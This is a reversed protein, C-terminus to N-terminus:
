QTSSKDTPSKQIDTGDNAWSQEEASAFMGYFVAGFFYIGSAIFFVIRWEEATKNQTIYGTITPSIIGPLTGVTNGIGLLVSAHKPAVDLYNVLFASLAFAGFGVAFTLCTVAGAPNQIFTASLMFICQLLFAGSCYLKRVQTITMYKKVILYDAVQGSIQMAFGMVLYPVASLFGAKQIDFKLVDKMFTPLETLLTYFGWTESFNAVVIACMPLSTFIKKWPHTVSKLKEESAGLSDEIYSLERKDIYKDDQPRRRVLLLWVIYWAVGIGGFFYFVSPWGVNSALVGSVTMAVVAGFYSGSYAFTTLRSRELPPAWNSWVDHMSPYSVGEFVGEIIRIAIFWYVSIRALMPTFLTLFATVAIGFGFLIHGGIRASLWGGILQTTIYGYFYSGLIYGQLKGNWDFEPEEIITGNITQVIRQSTMASIAVSVNVRLSYVNFFGFFTMVAVIYRRRKWIKWKPYHMGDDPVSGSSNEHEFDSKQSIGNSTDM